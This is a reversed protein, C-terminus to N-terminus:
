RFLALALDLVVFQQISSVNGFSPNLEFLVQRHDTRTKVRKEGDM